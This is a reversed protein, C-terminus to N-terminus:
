AAESFMIDGNPSVVTATVAGAQPDSDLEILLRELAGPLLEADDDLFLALETEVLESALRRGGACGLNRESRRLRIRDSRACAAALTELSGAASHNDIVLIELPVTSRDLSELARLAVKPRNRTLVVATVGPETSSAPGYTPGTGVLRELRRLTDEVDVELTAPEPRSAAGAAVPSVPYGPLAF